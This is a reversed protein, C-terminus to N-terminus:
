TLKKKPEITELSILPPNDVFRHCYFNDTFEAPITKSSAYNPFVHPVNKSEPDEKPLLSHSGLLNQLNSAESFIVGDIYPFNDGPYLFQKFVPSGNEKIIELKSAHTPRPVSPDIPKGDISFHVLQGDVPMAARLFFEMDPKLASPPYGSVAILIIDEPNFLELYKESIKHAKGVLSTSYRLAMADVPTTYVKMDNIDDSINDRWWQNLADDPKALVAEIWIKKNDGLQICFDPGSGNGPLMDLGALNFWEALELEWLHAYFDGNRLKVPFDPDMVPTLNRGYYAEDVWNRLEYSSQSNDNRYSEYTQNKGPLSWVSNSM